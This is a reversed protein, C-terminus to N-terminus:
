QEAAAVQMVPMSLETALQFSAVEVKSAAAATAKTAIQGSAYAVQNPTTMWLGASLLLTAVLAGQSLRAVWNTRRLKTLLDETELAASLQQMEERLGASKRADNEAYAEALTNLEAQM